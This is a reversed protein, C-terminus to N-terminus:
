GLRRYEPKGGAPSIIGDLQAKLQENAKKVLTVEEFQKAHETTKWEEERMEMERYRLEADHLQQEAIKKKEKLKANTRTIEERGQAAQMTRRM